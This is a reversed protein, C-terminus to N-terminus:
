ILVITARILVVVILLIIVAVASLVGFGAALIVATYLRDLTKESM